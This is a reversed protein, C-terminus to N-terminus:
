PEPLLGMTVLASNLRATIVVLQSTLRDHEPDSRGIWFSSVASSAPLSDGYITQFVTYRYQKLSEFALRKDKRLLAVLQPDSHSSNLSNAQQPVVLTYNGGCFPCMTGTLHLGAGRHGCGRCETHM